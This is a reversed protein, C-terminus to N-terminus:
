NLMPVGTQRMAVAQLGRALRYGPIKFQKEHYLVQREMDECLAPEERQLMALFGSALVVCWLMRELALFSQTLFREIHWSQGLFRKGDEARWRLAYDHRVQRPGAHQDVLGCTLLLWREDHGFTYTPVVLWLPPPMNDQPVEQPPLRVPLTVARGRELRYRLAWDAWAGAAKRWGDPGTPGRDQRIRVIWRRQIRLLESLIEPRDGGRDMLWIGRGDTAERLTRFSKKWLDNESLFYPQNQSYPRLMLASLVDGEPQWHYAGFCWYGVVLPDGPESADQVTCRYQMVRAYPKALDTADLPILDDAQIALTQLHLVGAAWERHDWHPDALQASLREVANHLQCANHVWLRAANSLQVSATFVIGRTLERM